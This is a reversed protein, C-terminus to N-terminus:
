AWRAPCRSVVLHTLQPLLSTSARQTQCQGTFAGGGGEPGPKQKRLTDLAPAARPIAPHNKATPAQGTCQLAGLLKETRLWYRAGTTVVRGIDGSM